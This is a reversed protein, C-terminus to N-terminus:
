KERQRAIEKVTLRKVEGIEHGGGNQLFIITTDVNHRQFSLYHPTYRIYIRHDIDTKGMKAIARRQKKTLSPFLAHLIFNLDCGAALMRTKGKREAKVPKGDSDTPLYDTKKVVQRAWYGKHKKKAAM